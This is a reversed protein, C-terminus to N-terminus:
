EESSPMSGGENFGGSNSPLPHGHLDMWRALDELGQAIGVRPASTFYPPPEGALVWVQRTEHVIGFLDTGRGSAELGAFCDKHGTSWIAYEVGAHYGYDYPAGWRATAAEQVAEFTILDAESM